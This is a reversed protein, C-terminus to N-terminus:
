CGWRSLLKCGPQDSPPWWSSFPLASFSSCFFPAMSLCAFRRSAAWYNSARLLVQSLSIPNGQAAESTLIQLGAVYIPWAVFSGAIMCFNFLGALATRLDLEGGASM